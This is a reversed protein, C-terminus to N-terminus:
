RRCLGAPGTESHSAQCVDRLGDVLDSTAPVNHGSVGSSWAAPFRRDLRHRSRRLPTPKILTVDDCRQSTPLHEPWGRCSLEFGGLLTLRSHPSQPQQVFDTTSPDQMTSPRAVMRGRDWALECRSSVRGRHPPSTASRATLRVVWARRGPDSCESAESVSARLPPLGFLIVASLLVLSCTVQRFVGHGEPSGAATRSSPIPAPRLVVVIMVGFALLIHNMGRM